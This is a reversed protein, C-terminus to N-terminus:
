AHPSDGRKGAATGTETEPCAGATSLWDTVGTLGSVLWQCLGVCYPL